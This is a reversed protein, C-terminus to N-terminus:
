LFLRNGVNGTIADVIWFVGYIAFHGLILGLFFPRVQRYASLGGLRQVPIKVAWAILANFAMWRFTSAVPFGIPHLPWWPLYHRALMLLAMVGAGVSTHLWGLADPGTPDNIRAASYSSFMSSLTVFHTKSLNVAGYTYALELVMWLSGLSGLLLALLMGWFLPRRDGAIQDTLRLGHACHPMPFNLLDNCFVRTFMLGAIGSSGYLSTGVASLAADSAVLPTYFAVVGGEVVIRTIALYVVFAFVLFILAGLTPIGIARLWITLVAVAGVFGAVAGRYSLIEDRDDVNPAGTVAKAFVTKLHGRALWLVGIALVMMAGMSQHVMSHPGYSWISIAPDSRAGWGMAIYLDEQMNSLAPLLWLGLLVERPLLFFFGLTAFSLFSAAYFPISFALNIEPLHAFYDHMGQATGVALPVSAGLWMVKSRFIPALRSVSGSEQAMALPLQIIPYTLRDQEIWRRRLIVTLCLMAVPLSALLPLWGLVPRLWSRWDISANSGSGEYFAILAQPADPLLWPRIHPSLLQWNADSSYYLPNAVAPVWYHVMVHTSNALSMMIFVVVLEGSRFVWLPRLRGFAGNGVLVLLLLLCIAMPSGFFGSSNSGQVHMSIVPGLIGVVLALVSGAILSRRTMASAPADLGSVEGRGAGFGSPTRKNM